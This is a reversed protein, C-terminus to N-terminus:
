HRAKKISTLMEKRAAQKQKQAQLDAVDHQSGICCRVHEFAFQVTRNEVVYLLELVSDCLNTLM